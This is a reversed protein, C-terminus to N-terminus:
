DIVHVHIEAKYDLILQPSFSFPIQLNAFAPVTVDSQKTILSFIDKHPSFLAIKVNKSTAFPNRFTIFGSTTHTVKSVVQTSEMLTPKEGIGSVHFVWDGVKPNSLTIVASESKNISSPSYQCYTRITEF